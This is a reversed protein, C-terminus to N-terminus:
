LYHIGKLQGGQRCERLSYSSCAVYAIGLRNILNLYIQALYSLQFNILINNDILLVKIDLGGRRVAAASIRFM